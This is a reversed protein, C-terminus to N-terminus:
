QRELIVFVNGDSDRKILEQKFGDLLPGAKLYEKELGVYIIRSVKSKVLVDEFSMYPNLASANMNTEHPATVIKIRLPYLWYGAALGNIQNANEFFLVAEGQQNFGRRAAEQAGNVTIDRVEAQVTRPSKSLVPLWEKQVIAYGSAAVCYFVLCICTVFVVRKM